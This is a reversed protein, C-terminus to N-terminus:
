EPVSVVLAAAATGGDFDCCPGTAMISTFQSVFDEWMMVFLGRNSSVRASKAAGSDSGGAATSSARAESDQEEVWQSLPAPLEGHALSPSLFLSLFLSFSVPPSLFSSVGCLLYGILLVFSESV